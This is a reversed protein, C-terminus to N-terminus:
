KVTSLINIMRDESVVIALAKIKQNKCREVYKLTSNYRAGRETKGPVSVNGDLIVGIAYCMGSDDFIAAGDISTISHIYEEEFKTSEIAMGISERLLRESEKYVSGKDLIVVITGHEQRIAGDFISMISDSCGKGFLRAYERTFESRSFEECEMVYKGCKYYVAEKELMEMYWVMHRIIRFAIGRRVRSKDCLGVIRWGRNVEKRAILYQRANGMELLKRMKRINEEEVEIPEKLLVANKDEKLNDDSLAFCIGSDCQSGEYYSGSLGIIVNIDIGYLELMYKRFDIPIKIYFEEIDREMTKLIDSVKFTDEIGVTGTVMSAWASIVKYYENIMCQLYADGVKMGSIGIMCYIKMVTEGITNKEITGGICRCFSIPMKRCRKYEKEIDKGEEKVIIDFFIEEFVDQAVTDQPVSRLIVDEITFNKEQLEQKLKSIKVDISCNM